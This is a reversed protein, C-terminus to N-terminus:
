VLQLHAKITEPQWQNLTAREIAWTITKGLTARRVTRCAEGITTLTAQAWARVRCQHWQAVLLRPVLLVLDTHRTQGEGSRLQCAGLGVPQQGDRPRTDTGTWRGRDRRLLRTVAGHTQKAVLRNVPQKGNGHEWLIVLRM